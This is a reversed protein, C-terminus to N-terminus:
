RASWRNISVVGLVLAAEAAAPLLWVARTAAAYLVVLTILALLLLQQNSRSRM